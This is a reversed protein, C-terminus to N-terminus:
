LSKFMANAFSSDIAALNASDYFPADIIITPNSTYYTGSDVLTLSNVIGM